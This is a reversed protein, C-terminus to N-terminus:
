TSLRRRRTGPRLDAQQDGGVGWADDRSLVHGGARLAEWAAGRRGVCYDVRACGVGGM